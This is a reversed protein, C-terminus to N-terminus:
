LLVGVDVSALPRELTVEWATVLGETLSSLQRHVTLKMLVDDEGDM